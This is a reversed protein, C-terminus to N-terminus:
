VDRCSPGISHPWPPRYCQGRDGKRSGFGLLEARPNTPLCVSYVWGRRLRRSAGSRSHVPSYNRIKSRAATGSPAELRRGPRQLGRRGHCGQSACVPCCETACDHDYGFCCSDEPPCYCVALIIGPRTRMEVVFMEAGVPELDERREPRLQSNIMCAVGGGVRGQRDRRFLVHSPLASEMESSFVTDNLWTETIAIVDSNQLSPAAQRWDGLKNKISQVNQLLISINRGSGLALPPGPNLEIDGSQKLRNGQYTASSKSDYRIRTRHYRGTREFHHTRVSIRVRVAINPYCLAPVPSSPIGRSCPAAIGAAFPTIPPALQGCSLGALLCGTVGVFLKGSRYSNVGLRARLRFAPLTPGAGDWSYVLLLACLLARGILHQSARGFTARTLHLPRWTYSCDARRLSGGGRPAVTEGAPPRGGAAPGRRTLGVASCTTDDGRTSIGLGLGRNALYSTM